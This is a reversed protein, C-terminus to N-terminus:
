HSESNAGAFFGNWEDLKDPLFWCRSWRGHEDVEALQAVVVSMREGHRRATITLFITVYRDGALVDDVDIRLTGGSVEDMMTFFRLVGERGRFRGSTPTDGPAYWVVNEAFGDLLLPIDGAMFAGVTQRMRTANPHEM